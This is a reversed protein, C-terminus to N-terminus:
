RLVVSPHLFGARRGPEAVALLSGASTLLRVRAAGADAPPSVLDGPGIEVGHGARAEGAETLVVAPLEALLGDIPRLHAAALTPDRELAALEVADAERFGGSRTRRLAVLHAGVGVARGLDHALVRVYFGPACSVRLRVDADELDLLTIEHVTVPVAPPEVLRGKRALEYARRGGVKKASYPPPVQRYSGELGALATRVREATVARRAEAADAVGAWAPGLADGEADYTATAQGLRVRAEYVKDGARLFQALRTARGIVLPLVGTAIPDLTGTHGVRSEGLARRVRAVVDHSTPGAPKDIILVGDM